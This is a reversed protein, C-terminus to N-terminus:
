KQLGEICLSIAAEVHEVDQDGPIVKLKNQAQYYAELPQTQAHYVQLRTQITELNDDQRKRSLLRSLITKESVDLKLVLAITEGIRRLMEDLIKAQDLNRPFGDLLLGFTKKSKEHTLKSQIMGVVIDDPVLDGRDMYSKAQLGLPTQAQLEERLLAGSSLHLFGFNSILREAQTGKGAGPPGLFVVNM